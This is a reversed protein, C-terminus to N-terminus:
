SVSPCCSPEVYAYVMGLDIAPNLLAVYSLGRRIQLRLEADIDPAPPLYASSDAAIMHLVPQFESMFM